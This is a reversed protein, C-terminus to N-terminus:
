PQCAGVASAALVRCTRNDGCPVPVSPDCIPECLRGGGAFVEVCVLGPACDPHQECPTGEVFGGAPSCAGAGGAGPYCGRAGMCDQRLLSCGSGGPADVAAAADPRPPLRDVQADGGGIPQSGTGTGGELADAFNDLGDPLNSTVERTPVDGFNADGLGPIPKPEEDKCGAGLLALCAALMM